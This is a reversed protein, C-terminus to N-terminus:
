QEAVHNRCTHEWRQTRAAMRVEVERQKHEHALRQRRAEGDRKCAALEAELVAVKRELSQRARQSGIKLETHSSEAQRRAAEAEEQAM